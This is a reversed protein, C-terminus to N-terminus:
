VQVNNPQLIHTPMDEVACDRRVVLKFEHQTELILWGFTKPMEAFFRRAWIASEREPLEPCGGGLHSIWTLKMIQSSDKGYYALEYRCFNLM